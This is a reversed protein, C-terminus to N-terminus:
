NILVMLLLCDLLLVMVTFSICNIKNLCLSFRCQLLNPRWGGFIKKVNRRGNLHVGKKQQDTMPLTVKVFFEIFKHYYWALVFPSRIKLYNRTLYWKYMTRYISLGNNSIVLHLFNLKILGFMM